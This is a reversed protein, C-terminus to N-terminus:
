DGNCHTDPGKGPPLAAPAHRQGGVGDLATTLSLTSSCRQEGELAVKVKVLVWSDAVRVSARYPRDTRVFGTGHRARQGEWLSVRFVARRLQVLKSKAGGKTETQHREM